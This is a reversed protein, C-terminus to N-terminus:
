ARTQKHRASTEIPLPGHIVTLHCATTQMQVRQEVVEGTSKKRYSLLMSELLDVHISIGAVQQGNALWQWSFRSGQVLFGSRRIKCIDLPMSDSTETKGSYSSRRGSGRGGM